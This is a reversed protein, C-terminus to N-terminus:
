ASCFWPTYTQPHSHSLFFHISVRQCLSIRRVQVLRTATTDVGYWDIYEVWRYLITSYRFLLSTQRSHIANKHLMLHLHFDWKGRFEKSIVALSSGIDINYYMCTILVRWMEETVMHFIEININHILYRSAYMIFDCRSDYEM